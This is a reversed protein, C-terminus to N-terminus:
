PKPAAVCVPYGDPGQQPISDKGCADMLEKVAAQLAIQKAPNAQQAQQLLENASQAESLAKYYHMKVADSIIPPKTAAAAPKAPASQGQAAAAAAPKTVNQAQAGMGVALLAMVAFILITQKM